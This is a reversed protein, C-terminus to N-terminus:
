GGHRPQRVEGLLKGTARLGHSEAADGEMQGFKQPMEASPIPVRRAGRELHDDV